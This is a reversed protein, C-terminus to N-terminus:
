PRPPPAYWSEWGCLSFFIKRGTANLADRMLGYQRYGDAPDNPAHCSDEEACPIRCPACSAAARGVRASCRRPPVRAPAPSALVVASTCPLPTLVFLARM